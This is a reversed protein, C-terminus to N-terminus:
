SALSRAAQKGETADRRDIRAPSPPTADTTADRRERARVVYGYQLTHVGEGGWGVRARAHPHAEVFGGFDPGFDVLTM